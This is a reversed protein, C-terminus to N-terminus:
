SAPLTEQLDLYFGWPGEKLQLLLPGLKEEFYDSVEEADKGANILGQQVSKGFQDNLWPFITERFRARLFRLHRNSPDIFAEINRKSLFLSIEGKTVGLLPRLIRAGRKWSEPKLGNWHSWHAGEFIRKCITEAQDDQHHGTIVAQFHFE